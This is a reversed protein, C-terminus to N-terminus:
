VCAYLNALWRRQEGRPLDRHTAPRQTFLYLLDDPQASRDIAVDFGRVSYANTTVAGTTDSSQIVQGEADFTTTAPNSLADTLVTPLNLANYAFSVTRNMADTQTKVNGGADYGTQDTLSLPSTTTTARNMSDYAVTTTNAALGTPTPSQVVTQNGAADYAMTTKNGAPDTTGSRPTSSTLRSPRPM